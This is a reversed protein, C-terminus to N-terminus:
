MEPWLMLGSISILRILSILLMVIKNFRRLSKTGLYEDSHTPSIRHLGQLLDM